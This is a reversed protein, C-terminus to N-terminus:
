SWLDKIWKSNISTPTFSLTYNWKKAHLYGIKLAVNTSSSTNEGDYAKNRWWINTLFWTPTSAHIWVM